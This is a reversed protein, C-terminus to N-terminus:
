CTWVECVNDLTDYDLTVLGGILIEDGKGGNPV